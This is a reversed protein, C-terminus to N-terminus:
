EVPSNPVQPNSTQSTQNELSMRKARLESLRLKLTELDFEQLKEILKVKDEYSLKAVKKRRSQLRGQILTARTAELLDDNLATLRQNIDIPDKRERTLKVLKKLRIIELEANEGFGKTQTLKLKLDILTDIGAVAAAQSRLKRMEQEQNEIQAKLQTLKIREAALTRNASELDADESKLQQLNYKRLPTAALKLGPGVLFFTSWLETINAPLLTTSVKSGIFFQSKGTYDESVVKGTSDYSEVATGQFHHIQGPSSALMLFINEPQEDVAILEDIVFSQGRQGEELAPSALALQMLALSCSLIALALLIQRVGM